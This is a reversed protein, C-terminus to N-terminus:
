ITMLTREEAKSLTQILDPNIQFDVKTTAAEHDGYYRKIKNHLKTRMKDKVSQLKFSKKIEEYKYFKVYSPAAIEEEKLAFM